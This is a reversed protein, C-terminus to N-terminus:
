PKNCQYFKNFGDRIKEWESRTLGKLIQKSLYSAYGEQDFINLKEYQDFSRDLLDHFSRRESERQKKKDKEIRAYFAEYDAATCRCVEEGDWCIPCHWFM